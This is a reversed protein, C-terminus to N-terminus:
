YKDENEETHMDAESPLKPLQPIEQLCPFHNRRFRKLYISANDRELHSIVVTDLNM